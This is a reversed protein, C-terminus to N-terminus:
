SIGHAALWDAAAAQGAHDAVEMLTMENTLRANLEDASTSGALEELATTDGRGVAEVLAIQAPSPPRRALRPVNLWATMGYGLSNFGVQRYMREGTANLLAYRCGMEQAHRCAAATVAKGIGQKRAEPVVGIDYLGAVGLPGTTVCLTSHGVPKEGLWAAFRWVRQPSLRAAASTLAAAARSYYPLNKVDWVAEGEVPEVRLGTPTPHNAIMRDLDLAMWHPQWGPQFGRALLRVELDPPETPALSWLGVLPEPPHDLYYRLIADLQEGARAPALRPFLIMAEGKPGAYTWTVGEAEQVEGGAARAKLVMWERHNEAAAEELARPM